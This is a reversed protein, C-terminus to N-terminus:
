TGVEDQVLGKNYGMSNLTVWLDETDGQNDEAEMQNLGIFGNRTLEGNKLEVNETVFYLTSM